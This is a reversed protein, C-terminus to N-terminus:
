RTPALTERAPQRAYANLAQKIAGEFANLWNPMEGRRQDPPGDVEGHLWLNRHRPAAGCHM